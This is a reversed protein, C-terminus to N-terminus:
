AAPSANSVLSRGAGVSGGKTPPVPGPSHRGVGGALAGIDTWYRAVVSGNTIVLGDCNLGPGGGGSALSCYRRSKLSTFFIPATSPWGGTPAHGAGFSVSM